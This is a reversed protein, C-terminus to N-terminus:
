RMNRPFENRRLWPYGRVAPRRLVPFLLLCPQGARGAVGGGAAIDHRDHVWGSDLSVDGSRAALTGSVPNQEVPPTRGAVGARRGGVARQGRRGRRKALGYEARESLLM